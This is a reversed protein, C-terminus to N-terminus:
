RRNRSLHRGRSQTSEPEADVGDDVARRAGGRRRDLAARYDEEIRAAEEDLSFRAKVVESAREVIPRRDEPSSLLRGLAAVLGPIEGPPVLIGAEGGALMDPIAGVASAVVATEAAMAELISLPMAERHSPLVFVTAEWLFPRVDQQVGAFRVSGDIGRERAVRELDARLPGDGVLTLRAAPHRRAIEQWAELLGAHNKVPTLSAVCVVAQPDRRLADPPRYREIRIGNPLLRLVTRPVHHRNRLLNALDESVAYVVDCRRFLIRDIWIRHAKQAIKRGSHDHCALVLRPHALAITRAWTNAEFNHSHLVDPRFSRIAGDLFPLIRPSLRSRRDLARMQMGAPAEREFLPGNARNALLLVEHGRRALAASLEFGFTEAGGIVTQSVLQVIRLRRESM